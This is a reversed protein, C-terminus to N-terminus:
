KKGGRLSALKEFLHTEEPSIDHPIHVNVLVFLDGKQKGNEMRPLGMGKIRLRTGNDTGPPIKVKLTKGELTRISVQGGLIATYLDVDVTHYINHDRSEFFPHKDIHITFYLDGRAGGGLGESGMNPIRVRQGDITGPAIRIRLKSGDVGVLRESGQVEDELSIHIDSEYDGGKQPSRTKRSTFNSGFLSEFFDSFGGLNEFIDEADASYTYYDQEGQPAKAYQRFWDDYNERNNTQYQNWNSGLQDYKKRKEPDGLVEHAETAEKFKQEADKNGQNKDPHYKMALKRYAKKIEEQSANKSVGLISYYDKFVM